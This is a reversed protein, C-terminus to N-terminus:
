PVEKVATVRGQPSNGGPIDWAAIRKQSIYGAGLDGWWTEIYNM